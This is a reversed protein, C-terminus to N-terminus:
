FAVRLSLAPQRRVTADFTPADITGSGIEIARIQRRTQHGKVFLIVGTGVLGVSTVAFCKDVFDWGGGGLSRYAGWFVATGLGLGTAVGGFAMQMRYKRKLRALSANDPQRLAPLTVSPAVMQREVVVCSKEEGSEAHATIALAIFLFLLSIRHKM